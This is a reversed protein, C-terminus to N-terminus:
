YTCFCSFADGEFLSMQESSQQTAEIQRLTLPLVTGNRQDRCIAYNARADDNRRQVEEWDRVEDFREPMADKLRLWEKIGQRVCRGGCNNHPFGMEYLRPPKIGLELVQKYYKGSPIPKWTLPFDVSVGGISEYEKKPRAMRHEETWDLGLHVTVPKEM